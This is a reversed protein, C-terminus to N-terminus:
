VVFVLYGRRCENSVEGCREHEKPCTLHRVDYRFPTVRLIPHRYRPAYSFLSTHSHAWIKQESGIREEWSAILHRQREARVDDQGTEADRHWGHDEDKM